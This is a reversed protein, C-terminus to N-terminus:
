ELFTCQAPRLQSTQEVPKKCTAFSCPKMRPRSTLIVCKPVQPTSKALQMNGGITTLSVQGVTEGSMSSAVRSVGRKFLPNQMLRQATPRARPDPTMAMCIIQQLEKPLDCIAHGIDCNTIEKIYDCPQRARWPLRGTAMTLFLVGLSWVDSKFPDLTKERFFEPPAFALSGADCNVCNGKECVVGLGFDALKPRGHPDILVNAPKIDRHAIGNDHCACLASLIQTYFPILLNRQLPVGSSLHDKLSGCPCYELILYLEHGEVFYEYLCIINPHILKKLNEIEAEGFQAAKESMRSVKAAFDRNYKNSHVLFVCAFGGRGLSRVFSYGHKELVDEVRCTM